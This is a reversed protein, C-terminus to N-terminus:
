YDQVVSCVSATLNTCASCKASKEEISRFNPFNTQFLLLHMSNSKTLTQSSNLDHQKSIINYNGKALSQETKSMETRSPTLSINHRFDAFFKLIFSKLLFCPRPKPKNLHWNHWNLFMGSPGSIMSSSSSSPEKKLLRKRFKGKRKKPTPTTTTPQQQQQVIMINLERQLLTLEREALEAERQKLREEHM